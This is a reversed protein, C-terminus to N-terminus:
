RQGGGAGHKGGSVAGTVPAGAMDWSWCALFARDAYLFVIPVLVSLGTERRTRRKTRTTMMTVV